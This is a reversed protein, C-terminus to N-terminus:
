LKKRISLVYEMDVEQERENSALQKSYTQVTM